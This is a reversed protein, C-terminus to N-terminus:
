VLYKIKKLLKNMFEDTNKSFLYLGNPDYLLEDCNLSSIKNFLAVKGYIARNMRKSICLVYTPEKGEYIIMSYFYGQDEGIVKGFRNKVRNIIDEL